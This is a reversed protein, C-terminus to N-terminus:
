EKAFLDQKDRNRRTEASELTEFPDMESYFSPGYERINVVMPMPLAHGFILAQRQSELGSLANRLDRADRAGTLVADVDRENDLQCTFRTGIQSLVEDDIGSPRQDVVLLTVNFKRMERAITGFITNNSAHSNLFRHAEEITIVLPKPPTSNTAQAEETRDRYQGHIRRTILNAVLLYAALEDGYRGFELVVHKGSDLSKILTGIASQSPPVQESLFNFRKLRVLRRRLAELTSLNEKIRDALESLSESYNMFKLVWDDGLEWALSYCAQVGLETINLVGSLIAIDDPEIEQFAIRAIHDPSLGRRLASQEDLSFISVRTGFLQKLGKASHGAENRTEWGYESHMDFVLNTALNKQLIGALIIRTLFSKGTGSKGFVGTSRKVLESLDLCLRSDDLSLPNGLFIRNEDEQGFVAQIDEDSARFVSSFHPPISKAPRSEELLPSITRYTKVKAIGFTSTGHLIRAVEPKIESLSATFRPDASELRLDTLLGLFRYSSGHITVPLGVDIGEIDTNMDLRIELGTSLSGSAVMGLLHIQEQAMPENNEM